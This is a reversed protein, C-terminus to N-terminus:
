TTIRFVFTGKILVTSMSYSHLCFLLCLDGSSNPPCFKNFEKGLQSNKCWSSKFFLIFQVQIIHLFPHIWWIRVITRTCFLHIYGEEMAPFILNQGSPSVQATRRVERAARGWDPEPTDVYFYVIILWKCNINIAASLCRDQTWIRCRESHNQLAAPDNHM